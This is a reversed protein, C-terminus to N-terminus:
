LRDIARTFGAERDDAGLDPAVFDSTLWRPFTTTRSPLLQVAVSRFALLPTSLFEDRLKIRAAAARRPSKAAIFETGRRREVRMMGRVM